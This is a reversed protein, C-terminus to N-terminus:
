RLLDRRFGPGLENLSLKIEFPGMAYPGMEYPNFFWRLGDSEVVFNNFQATELTKVSGDAVWMASPNRRLKAFIKTKVLARYPTGPQFFDGLVLTKSRGGIFGLNFPRMWSMGHAGGDYQYADFRLSILRPALFVTSDSASQYDLPVGPAFDRVQKRTNELWARFATVTQHRIQANAFRALPTRARFIPFAAKADFHKGRATLTKLRAVKKLAVSHGQAVGQQAHVPWVSAGAFCLLVPTILSIKM